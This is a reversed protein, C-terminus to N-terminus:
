PADAYKVRSNHTESFGISRSTSSRAVSPTEAGRFPPNNAHASPRRASRFRNRDSTLAKAVAADSKGSGRCSVIM